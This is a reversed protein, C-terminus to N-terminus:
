AAYELGSPAAQAVPDGGTLGMLLSAEDAKLVKRATPGYTAASGIAQTIETRATADFSDLGVQAPHFSETPAGNAWIVQHAGFLLHYYVVPRSVTRGRIGRNACMHKAAAFCDKTDFLVDSLPHTLAIRHNPSIHLDRSPVGKALAGVPICVPRVSRHVCDEPSLSRSGVWLVPQLGNDMTVVQDGPSLTDIAREGQNTLILTGALFCPVGGPNPTTQVQYSGGNDTTELSEGQGTTGIQTSTTGTAPGASATVARDFSVFQTVTGDVVLAVAGNRNLGNFTGSTTTDVVYVDRGAQTNELSDLSNTSRVTGNPNYIVVQINSVDTGADVAVEIFDVNRNGLYRLESLYPDPM